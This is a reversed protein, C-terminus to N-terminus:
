KGTYYNIQLSGTYTKDYPAELFDSRLSVTVTTSESSPVAFDIEGYNGFERSGGSLSIAMGSVPSDPNAFKNHLPYSSLFFHLGGFTKEVDKSNIKEYSTYGGFISLSPSLPFLIEVKFNTTAKTKKYNDLLMIADLTVIPSGIKGDPNVRATNQLPNSFYYRFGLGLQYTTQFEKLITFSQHESFKESIVWGIKAKYKQADVVPQGPQNKISLYSLGFSLSLKGVVGDPHNEYINQYRYVIKTQTNETQCFVSSVSLLIWAAILISVLIRKM